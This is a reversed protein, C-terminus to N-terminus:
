RSGGHVRPTQGLVAVWPHDPQTVALADALWDKQEDDLLHLTRALDVDDKPRAQKAKYLLQVEPTCYAIGGPTAHTLGARPREIRPDRRFRWTTDDGDALMVEIAWPEGPASRGWIGFVHHPLDIGPRWPALDGASVSFLEWGEFARGLVDRDTRFMEVDVDAHPRSTWGLFLDIAVGGAIWWDAGTPDMRGAIEDIALPKWTGDIDATTDVAANHRPLCGYWPVM